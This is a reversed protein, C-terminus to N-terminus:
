LRIPNLHSPEGEETEEEIDKEDEEKETEDKLPEETAWLLEPAVKPSQPNRVPAARCGGELGAEEGSKKSLCCYAGVMVYKDDGCSYKHAIPCFLTSDM